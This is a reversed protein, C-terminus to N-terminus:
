IGSLDRFFCIKLKEDQFFNLNMPFQLSLVSFGWTGEVCNRGACADQTVVCSWFWSVSVSAVHVTGHQNNKKGHQKITHISTFTFTFGSLWTWRKAVGHVTAGWAGRDMPNELCSCQLPNGNGEGPSRGSGPILGPDGGNWASAKNDWSGPFGWYTYIWTFVM